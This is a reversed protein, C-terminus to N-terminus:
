EMQLEGASKGKANPHYVTFYSTTPALFLKYPKTWDGGCVLVPTGDEPPLREEVSIWEKM